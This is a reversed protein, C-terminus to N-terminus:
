RCRRPGRADGPVYSAGLRRPRLPRHRRRDGADHRARRRLAGGGRDGVLESGPWADALAWPADLLSGIDCAARSSSPRSSALRHADRILRRRRAMRRSALLPDGAPRLCMRFDPDEYRRDHPRGPQTRVPRGGVRVLRAGGARARGPRPRAAAPQLRRRPREGRGRGRRRRLFRAWEDPFVRAGNRRTWDSEARRRSATDLVAGDRQRARAPARCLRAGLGLGVVRRDGALARDRGERLREIDALLHHTTNASLDATPGGAHPLSRGCGRQDFLVIRYRAPDFLASWAPHLRLGTRRPPGGGAQRGPRRLVGLPDPPRRRRRADGGAFPETEPYPAGAMLGAAEPVLPRAFPEDNFAPGRRLRGVPVPRHRSSRQPQDGHAAGRRRAARTPRSSALMRRGLGLGRASEAVWM